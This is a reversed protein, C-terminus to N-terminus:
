MLLFLGLVVTDQLVVSAIVCAASDLLGEIFKQAESM